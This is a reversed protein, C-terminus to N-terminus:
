KGRTEGPFVETENDSERWGAKFGWNEKKKKQSPPAGGLRRTSGDGEWTQLQPSPKRAVQQEQPANGMPYGEKKNTRSTSGKKGKSTM